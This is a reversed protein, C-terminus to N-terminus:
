ERRLRQVIRRASTGALHEQLPIEEVEVVATASQLDAANFAVRSHPGNAPTWAPVPYDQGTYDLGLLYMPRDFPPNETEEDPPVTATLGQDNLRDEMQPSVGYRPRAVVIESGSAVSGKFSRLVRFSRGLVQIGDVDLLVTEEAPLPQAVVVADSTEVLDTLNSVEEDYMIDAAGAPVEERVPELNACAPLTMLVAVLLVASSPNAM